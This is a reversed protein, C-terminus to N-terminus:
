KTAGERVLPRLNRKSSTRALATGRSDLGHRLEQSEGGVCLDAPIRSDWQCFSGVNHLSSIRDAHLCRSVPYKWKGISLKGNTEKKKEGFGKM